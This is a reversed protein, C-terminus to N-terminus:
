AMSARSGPLKRKTLNTRMRQLCTVLMDLDSANLGEAMEDHLERRFAAFQKLIPASKPTLRLRWIRRDEPDPQREILNNAELRDVLRGITIPEVDTLSALRSQTIGPERQLRALVAWQARTMGYTRARKDAQRRVLQAVDYILFLFDSDIARHPNM